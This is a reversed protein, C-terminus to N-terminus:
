ESDRDKRYMINNLQQKQEHRNGRKSRTQQKKSFGSPKNKRRNTFKEFSEDNMTILIVGNNILDLKLGNHDMLIMLGFM